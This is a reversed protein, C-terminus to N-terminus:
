DHEDIWIHDKRDQDEARRNEESNYADVEKRQIERDIMEQESEDEPDYVYIGFRELLWQKWAAWSVQKFSVFM